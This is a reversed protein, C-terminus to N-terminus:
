VQGRRQKVVSQNATEGTAVMVKGSPLMLEETKIGVISKLRSMLSSKNKVNQKPFHQQVIAKMRQRTVEKQREKRELQKASDSAIQQGASIRMATYLEAAKKAEKAIDSNSSHKIPPHTVKKGQKRAIMTMALHQATKSPDNVKKKRSETLEQKVSDRASMMKKMEEMKREVINYIQEKLVDNAEKYNNEILSEILKSM